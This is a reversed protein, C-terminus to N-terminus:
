RDCHVAGRLVGDVVCRFLRDPLFAASGFITLVRPLRCWEWLLWPCAGAGGAAMTACPAGLWWRAEGQLKVLYFVLLSYPVSCVVAM